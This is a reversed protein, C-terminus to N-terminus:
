RNKDPKVADGVPKPPPAVDGPNLTLSPLGQRSQRIQVWVQDVCGEWKGSVTQTGGSTTVTVNCQTGSFSGCSATSYFDKNAITVTTASEQRCACSCSNMFTPRRPLAEASGSLALTAAIAVSILAAILGYEIATVGSEDAIFSKRRCTENESSCIVLIRALDV